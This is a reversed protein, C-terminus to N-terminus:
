WGGARERSGCGTSRRAGSRFFVGRRSPSSATPAVPASSGSAGHEVDAASPPSPVVVSAMIGALLPSTYRRTWLADACVAVPLPELYRSLETFSGEQVSFVSSCLDPPRRGGQCGQNGDTRVQQIRLRKSAEVVVPWGPYWETSHSRTRYVQRLEGLGVGPPCRLVVGFFLRYHRKGGEDPSWAGAVVGTSDALLEARDGSPEESHLSCRTNRGAPSCTKNHM